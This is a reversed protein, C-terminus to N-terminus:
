YYITSSSRYQNNIAKLVTRRMRIFLPILESKRQETMGWSLSFHTSNLSISPKFITPGVWILSNGAFIDKNSNNRWAPSNLCWNCAIVSFNRKIPSYYQRAFFSISVGNILRCKVCGKALPKANRATDSQVPPRLSSPVPPRGCFIGNEPCDIAAMKGPFGVDTKM